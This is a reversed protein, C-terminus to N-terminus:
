EGFTNSQDNMNKSYWQKQAYEDSEKQEMRQLKIQEAKKVRDILKRVGEESTKAQNYNLEAKARIKALQALHTNLQILATDLHNIFDIRNRLRGVLSGQNGLTELQQLYDQRYIVLQEHRIKNQNFQEKAKMLDMYVRKTAEQKIQLLQILRDLRQSM